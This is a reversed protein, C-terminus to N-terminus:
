KRKLITHPKRLHVVISRWVVPWLSHDFIKSTMRHIYLLRKTKYLLIAFVGKVPVGGNPPYVPHMLQEYVENVMPEGGKVPVDTDLLRNCLHTLACIFDLLRDDTVGKPLCWGYRKLLCAWDFLHHLRIGNGFHQAAHFSLFLANFAPPPVNVRYKGECLEVPQPDLLTHLLEDMPVAVEYKDVDLFNKHNEIPIGKYYFNSHKPTHDTEVDVGQGKMLEDALRNAERDSRVNKDASWTYIDIDGGERHAPIPYCASLGVGKLQVMAIGHGAYFDQLEAAARCYREYKEEYDQVALGWTLRLARPLACEDGCLAIGDWALAMVGHTAALKYCQQWDEDTCTKWCVDAVAKGHLAAKLLAFLMQEVLNMQIGAM